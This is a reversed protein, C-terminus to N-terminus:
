QSTSDAQLESVGEQRQHVDDSDNNASLEKEPQAAAAAAYGEEQDEEKTIEQVAQEEEQQQQEEEGEAATTQVHEQLDENVDREGEETTNTDQLVTLITNVIVTENYHEEIPLGCQHIQFHACTPQVQQASFM